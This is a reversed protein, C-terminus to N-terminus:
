SHPTSNNEITDKEFYNKLNTLWEPLVGDVSEPECRSLKRQEIRDTYQRKSENM